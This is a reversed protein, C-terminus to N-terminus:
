DYGGGCEGKEVDERVIGGGNLNSPNSSSSATRRAAVAPPTIVLDLMHGALETSSLVQLLARVESVTFLV